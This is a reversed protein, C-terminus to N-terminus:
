LVMKFGSPGDQRMSEKRRAEAIKRLPETERQTERLAEALAAISDRDRKAKMKEIRRQLYMRVLPDM